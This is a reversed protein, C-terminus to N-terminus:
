EVFGFRVYRELFTAKRPQIQTVVIQRTSAAELLIRLLVPAIESSLPAEVDFPDEHMLVISGLSAANAFAKDVAKQCNQELEERASCGDALSFDRPSYRWHAVQCDPMWRKLLRHIRASRHGSGYPLRIIYPSPTPRHRALLAETAQLEGIAEEESLNDIRTHSYGHAYTGCGAAVIKAVLEPHAAIRRGCLFFTAQAKYAQLLNLVAETTHPSPGDDFSLAISRKGLPSAFLVPLWQGNSLGMWQSLRGMM